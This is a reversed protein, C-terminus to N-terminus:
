AAVPCRGRAYEHDAMRMLPVGVGYTAFHDEPTVQIIVLRARYKEADAANKGKLKEYLGPALEEPTMLRARGHFSISADPIQAWPFFPIRKPINITLAVHPDKAIHRAKWSDRETAIYLKGAHVVYVIGATRPHGDPNVFALCGYLHRNIEKWVTAPTIAVM